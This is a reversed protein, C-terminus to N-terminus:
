EMYHEDLRTQLATPVAKWSAMCLAKLTMDPLRVRSGCWQELEQEYYWRYYPGDARRSYFVRQEGLIDTGALKFYVRLGNM